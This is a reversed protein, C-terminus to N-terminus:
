GPGIIVVPGITVTGDPIYPSLQNNYYSYNGTYLGINMTWVPSSFNRNMWDYFWPSSYLAIQMSYQRHKFKDRMGAADLLINRTTIPTSLVGNIVFKVSVEQILAYGSNDALKIISYNWTVEASGLVPASITVTNSLNGGILTIGSTGEVFGNISAAPVVANVVDIPYNTMGAVVTGTNAVVRGDWIQARVLPAVLLLCCSILLKVPNKM